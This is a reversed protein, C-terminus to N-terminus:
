RRRGLGGGSSRGGGGMRGTSRGMGGSYGGSSRGGGGYVSSRGSGYGSSIGTRPPPTRPRPPTWVSRPRRRSGLLMGMGLGTGFGGGFFSRRRSVVVGGRPRMMNSLFVIILFIVIITVIFDMFGGGTNQQQFTPNSLNAQAQTLVGTPQQSQHQQVTFPNVVYHNYVINFINDFAIRMAQDYDGTDFPPEIYTFINNLVGSNLIGTTHGDGIAIFYDEQEIVFLILVGNNENAGGIGWENFINKAFVAIDLGDTFLTTAVVIQATTIQSLEINRAIIHNQLENSLVNAFDNVYFNSTHAPVALATIRSFIFFIMALTFIKKM